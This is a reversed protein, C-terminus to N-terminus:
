AQDMQWPAKRHVQMTGGRRITVQQLCVPCRPGDHPQLSGPCREEPSVGYAKDTDARKEVFPRATWAHTAPNEMLTM